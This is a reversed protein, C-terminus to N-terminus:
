YIFHAKKFTHPNNIHELCMPILWKVNPVTEEEWIRNADYIEVQEDTRSEAKGIRGISVKAAFIELEWDKGEMYCINKWNEIDLGCEEICERRMAEIPTENLEIHGGIGNLKGSQWNPRNKRILLVLDGDFVYGVVMCEKM